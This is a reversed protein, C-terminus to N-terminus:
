LRWEWSPRLRRVAVAEPDAPVATSVGPTKWLMSGAQFSRFRRSSAPACRLRRSTNACMRAEEPEGSGASWSGDMGGRGSARSACRGSGPSRATFRSRTSAPRDRARGSSRPSSRSRATRRGRTQRQAELVVRRGRDLLRHAHDLLDAPRWPTSCGICIDTAVVSPRAGRPTGTNSRPRSGTVTRSWPRSSAERAADPARSARLPERVFRPEHDGLRESLQCAGPVLHRFRAVADDLFPLVLQMREGWMRRGAPGAARRTLVHRCADASGITGSWSVVRAGRVLPGPRKQSRNALPTQRAARPAPGPRRRAVRRTTRRAVRRRRGLM